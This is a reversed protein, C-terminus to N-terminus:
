SPNPSQIEAPPCLATQPPAQKQPAIELTEHFQLRHEHVQLLRNDGARRGWWFGPFFLDPAVDLVDIREGECTTYTANM